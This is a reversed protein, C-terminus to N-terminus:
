INFTLYYFFFHGHTLVVGPKSHTCVLIRALKLFTSASYWQTYLPYLTQHPGHYKEFINIDMMLCDPLFQTQLKTHTHTHTYKTKRFQPFLYLKRTNWQDHFNVSLQTQVLPILCSPVLFFITLEQM